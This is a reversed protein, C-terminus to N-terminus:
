GTAFTVIAGDSKSMWLLSLRCISLEILRMQAIAIVSGGIVFSDAAIPAHM